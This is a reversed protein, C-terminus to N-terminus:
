STAEEMRRAIQHLKMAWSEAREALRSEEEELSAEFRDAAVAELFSQLFRLDAAVARLRMHTWPRPLPPLEIELATAFIGRGAQRVGPHLDPALHLLFTERFTPNDEWSPPPSDSPPPAPSDPPSPPS